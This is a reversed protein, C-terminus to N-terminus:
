ADPRRKGVAGGPPAIPVPRREGFGPQAGAQPLDELVAQEVGIGM